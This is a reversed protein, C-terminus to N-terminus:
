SDVTSGTLRITYPTLAPVSFSEKTLIADIAVSEVEYLGIVSATNLGSEAKANPAPDLQYSGGPALEVKLIGTSGNQNKVGVSLIVPTPSAASNQIELSYFSGATAITDAMAGTGAVTLGQADVEWEFSGYYPKPEYPTLASQPLEFRVNNIPM